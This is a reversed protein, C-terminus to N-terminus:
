KNFSNYPSHQDDTIHTQESDQYQARPRIITVVKVGSEELERLEQRGEEGQEEGESQVKLLIGGGRGGGEQGGM